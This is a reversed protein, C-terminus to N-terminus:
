KTNRRRRRLQGCAADIESGRSKRLHVNVGCKHLRDMFARVAAKSPSRFGTEAVPNYNILNINCRTRKSWRALKDADALSCNVGDLLVYELTIERHTQRYYYDLASFIEDLSIKQAWPILKSRLNDDGAHMSFALTLQIPQHALQRIQEPLGITSITLRRAAIGLGWEANIAKVARLTNQYNALPEGMGMIVVNSIRDDQSLQERALIVQEVIESAQLSRELGSLGSACFACGVTCGVQSSLCVTRRDGEFMLVTETDAGDPWSLLLKITGDKCHLAKQLNARRLYFHQALEQRLKLPINGMLAWDTIGHQYVWPLIQNARYAPWSRGTLWASLEQQTYAFISKM